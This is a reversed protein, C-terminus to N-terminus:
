SLVTGVMVRAVSGFLEDTKASTDVHCTDRSVLLGYEWTRRSM